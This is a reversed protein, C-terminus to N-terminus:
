TNFPPFKASLKKILILLVSSKLSSCQSVVRKLLPKAITYKTHSKIYHFHQYILNISHFQYSSNDLIFKYANYLLYDQNLSHSFNTYIGPPSVFGMFFRPGPLM